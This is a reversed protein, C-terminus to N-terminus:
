EPIDLRRAYAVEAMDYFKRMVGGHPTTRDRGRRTAQWFDRVVGSEFIHYLSYEVEADTFYGLEYCMCHHSIILNCYMYQKQRSASVGAGYRPWCEMLVPDEIAMHLLKRHQSRVAAEAARQASRYQEQAGERQLALELRQAELAERHMRAEEGQQHFTRAIYILVVVSATAAAAGYAQGANGQSNSQIGPLNTLAITLGVSVLCSAVVVIGMMRIERVWGSGTMM